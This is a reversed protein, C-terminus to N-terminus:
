ASVDRQARSLTERVAVLRATTEREADQTPRGPERRKQQAIAKGLMENLDAITAQRSVVADRLQTQQHAVKELLTANEGELERLRRINAGRNSHV